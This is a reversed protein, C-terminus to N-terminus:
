GALEVLAVLLLLACALCVAAGLFRFVGATVTREPADLHGRSHRRLEANAEGRRALATASNRVDLALAGGLILGTLSLVLLFIGTNM